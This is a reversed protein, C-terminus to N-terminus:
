RQKKLLIAERKNKVKFTDKSLTRLEKAKKNEEDQKVKLISDALKKNEIIRNEVKEYMKKYNKLDSAYYASNEAFQLSDIKYKKFIYTSSNINNDVLAGPNVSNIANLISIDYIIDIMKEEEILKSPRKVKEQKCSLFALLFVYLLIKLKM